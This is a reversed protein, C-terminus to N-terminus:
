KKLGGMLIIKHGLCEPCTRTECENGPVFGAAKCLPCPIEKTTAMQRDFCELMSVAVAATQILELRIREPQGMGQLNAECIAKGVEGFEEGLITYWDAMRHNQVGWHRDQSEREQRIEELISNLSM